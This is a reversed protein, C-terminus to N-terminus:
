ALWMAAELSLAIGSLSVSGPRSMVLHAQCLWKLM